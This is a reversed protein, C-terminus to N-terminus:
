RTGAILREGDAGGKTVPVRLLRSGHRSVSDGRLQHLSLPQIESPGRPGPRGITLPKQPALADRRGTARDTRANRPAFDRTVGVFRKDPRPYVARTGPRSITM